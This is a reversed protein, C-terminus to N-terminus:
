VGTSCQRAHGPVLGEGLECRLVVGDEGRSMGPQEAERFLLDTAALRSRTPEML